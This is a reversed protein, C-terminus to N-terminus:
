RLLVASAAKTGVVIELPLGVLSAREKIAIDYGVNRLSEEVYIPRCDVYRPWKNHVWEYLKLLTSSGYSKSLSVIGLRGNPKLVRWIEALVKPIEPTDFLELTFSMFAADFVSDNLPLKVADGYYLGVRDLLQAKALKRKTIDLMGQAIDIGYAKGQEGVLQAIQRLIGGTGFGIELVNDGAQIGLRKLAHEAYKHEFRGALCDYFKSIRSYFQRAEEKSRHVPQITSTRTDARHSM